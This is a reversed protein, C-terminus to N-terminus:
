ENNSFVITEQTEVSRIYPIEEKPISTTYQCWFTLARRYVFDPFFSPAPEYDAGGMRQRFLGLNTVFNDRNYLMAWKVLQYMDIVLDGNPAWVELRYNSEYMVEVLDTSTKRYQYTVNVSEGDGFPGYMSVLGRDPDEVEYEFPPIPAGGQTTMKTIGVIPFNGLSLHPIALVAGEVAIVNASETVTIINSSDDNDYDGLGEQTEEENSLLICVCPLDAPTRPFGKIIRIPTNALVNKLKAVRTNPVSIIRDLSNINRKLYSFSDSLSTVLYDEILPIM